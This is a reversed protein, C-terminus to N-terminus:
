ELIDLLTEPPEKKKGSREPKKANEPIRWTRGEKLRWNEYDQRTPVNDNENGRFAYWM